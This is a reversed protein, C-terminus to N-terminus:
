DIPPGVFEIGNRNCLAALAQQDEATFPAQPPIEPREAPVSAERVMAEVTGNTLTLFRARPSLIRFAHPMGGPVHLSDGAGGGM